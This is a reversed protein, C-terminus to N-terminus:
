YGRNLKKISQYLNERYIINKKKVRFGPMKNDLVNKRLKLLTKVQKHKLQVHPGVIELFKDMNKDTLSYVILKSGKHKIICYTGGYLCSLEKIIELGRNTLKWSMSFRASYTPQFTKRITKQITFSGDSDATGALYEPTLKVKKM